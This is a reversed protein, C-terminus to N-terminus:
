WTIQADIFCIRDCAHSSVSRSRKASCSITRWSSMQNTLLRMQLFLPSWTRIGDTQQKKALGSAILDMAKGVPAMEPKQYKM